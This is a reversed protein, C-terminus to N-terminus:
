TGKMYKIDYKFVLGFSIYDNFFGPESPNNWLIKDYINSFVSGHDVM